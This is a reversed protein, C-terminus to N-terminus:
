SERETSPHSSFPGPTDGPLRELRSLTSSDRGLYSAIVAANAQVQEATGDAVIRGREMAYLRDCLGMLLPMDHEIILISCGVKKAIQPLLLGFAEAEHRAMGTTPEDLLLMRPGVAVQVMLDCVQRVGTSLESTLADQWSAMGFAAVIEAAEKRMRRETARVHPTRLLASAVGVQRQDALAIQVTETVTLGAFLSAHQFSRALGLRSRIIASKSAVDHGFLQVSGADPKLVGSIVNALSTKGAGNPGILGVIEGPGVRIAARDLASVGGFHLSVDCVVLPDGHFETAKPAHPLMNLRSPRGAEPIAGSVGAREATDDPADSDRAVHLRNLFSQWIRQIEGAIGNPVQVMTGVVGLGSFFLLFGENQGFSGFLGTIHPEIFFTSMYILVTAALVGGLSGIGGIVPIALVAISLSAPFQGPALNQWALAWFVGATATIFGSVALVKLKVLAPSIGFSSSATENDRVGIIVRGATSRRLSQSAAIILVLAVLGAYYVDRESLIHGVGPLVTTSSVSTTSPSSGGLWPRLFLWDPAVVALGLTTIAMTLGGAKLAPLGIVVSVGAGIVGVVPLLILLVWGTHGSWRATLFAAIGVIAFSGLSVQGAWGVLMTLAVGVIAYILVLILLFQNGQESFYPVSPLVVALVLAIVQLSRPVWRVVHSGRLNEPIKLAPVDPLVSGHVSFVKWLANRRILFVALIMGFIALEATGANNTEANVLQYVISLGVGGVVAAPISVFAGFSAAGLTLLLVFPGLAQANFSTTTPGILIAAFASLGGAIAWTILSSRDVSIGCLRAAEPNSAAARIERGVSTFELLVTLIVFLIPVVIMALVFMGDLVVGGIELHSGFPEPFPSQSNPILWQIFTLGLLLQGVGVSLLMLRTASGSRRRVVSILFREIVMATLVGIAVCALFSLWWNWHWDNVLKALLMASIVGLQAHALNLFRNAKYILVVGIALLAILMGNIVGLLITGPILRVAVQSWENRASTRKGNRWSGM